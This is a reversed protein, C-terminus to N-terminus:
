RRRDVEEEYAGTGLSGSFEGAEFRRNFEEWQRRNDDWEERTRYMSFEFADELSGGDLHMFTPTDFESQMMQCIPCDEDIMMEQCTAELPLRRREAEIIESPVRSTGGGDPSGLWREKVEELEGVVPSFEELMHRILEYYMVFEHTGFGSYRFAASEIPILAPCTGVFSWQLERSYLDFDVRDQHELLVERPTKGDLDHRPTMLWKAHCSTADGDDFNAALFASLETGYLVSRYDTRRRQAFEHRRKRFKVEYEDVSRVFEWDDSLWYRVPIDTKSSGDHYDVEGKPGINTYNQDSLVLKAALDVVVLGADYPTLNRSKSYWGFNEGAIFRGLALELEPITEPDAALSAVIAAGVSGHIEETLTCTSDTLVIRIQSM